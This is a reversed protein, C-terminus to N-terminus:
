EEEIVYWTPPIRVDSGDVAYTPKLNFQTMTVNELEQPSPMGFIQAHFRLGETGPTAAAGDALWFDTEDDPSLAADRLFEWNTADAKYLYDVEAGVELMTKLFAKFKSSRTKVEASGWEIPVRIDAVEKIEVWTPSAYTGSNRFLKCDFGTKPKGM